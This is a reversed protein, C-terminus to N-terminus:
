IESNLFNACCPAILSHWISSFIYSPHNASDKLLTWCVVFQKPRQQDPSKSMLCSILSKSMMFRQKPFLIDKFINFRPIEQFLEIRRFSDTWENPFVILSMQIANLMDVQMYMRQPNITPLIQLKRQAIASQIAHCKLNACNPRMIFRAYNM